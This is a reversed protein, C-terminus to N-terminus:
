SHGLRSADGGDLSYLIGPRFNHYQLKDHKWICYVYILYHDSWLQITKPTQFPKGSFTGYKIKVEANLAGRTESGDVYVSTCSSSVQLYKRPIDYINKMKCFTLKSQAALLQAPTNETESLVSHFSNEEQSITVIFDQFQIKM